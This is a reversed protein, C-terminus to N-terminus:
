KKEATCWLKTCMDNHRSRMCLCLTTCGHVNKLKASYKVPFHKISDNYEMLSTRLRHPHERLHGLPTWGISKYGSFSPPQDFIHCFVLFHTRHNPSHNDTTYGSNYQSCWQHLKLGMLGPLQCCLRNRAFCLSMGSLIKILSLLVGNPTTGPLLCYPM